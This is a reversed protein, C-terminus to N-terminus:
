QRILYFSQHSSLGDMRGIMRKLNNLKSHIASPIGTNTLPAGLLDIDTTKWIIGPALSNFDEFVQRKDGDGLIMLECKSFNLRLGLKASKEIVMALDNLVVEPSGGLTGDDLYWINLESKLMSVMEHISICFLPPGCPDGQQCGRQSLIYYDGFTLVTPTSYCQKIFPYIGPCKQYTTLLMYDRELENFANKFDLKLFVKMSKHDVNIFCRAAHAGAEAGGKTGYGLQSPRLESGLENMVRACAIKSVIRRYTSGIAIPRISGTQKNLACLAAGYLIPIIFDPAKGHLLLDSFTTLRATLQSGSEGTDISLMDKFHQPRIGDLGGASGNRFNDVAIKLESETVATATIINSDDFDLVLAPAPHLELLKAYTEANVPAISDNSSLIRIAGSVDGDNLKSQVTKIRLEDEDLKKKVKRPMTSKPVISNFFEKFPLQNVQSWIVLNRKIITALSLKSTSKDKRDPSKFAVFPFSLLKFWADSSNMNNACSSLVKTYEKSSQYRAAKPIRKIVRIYSKM